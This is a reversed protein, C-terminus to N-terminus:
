FAQGQGGTSSNLHRRRGNNGRYVTTRIERRLSPGTSLLTPSHSVWIIGKGRFISRGVTRPRSFWSEVHQMKSPHATKMEVKAVYPHSSELVSNIDTNNTSLGERWNVDRPGRREGIREPSFLRNVLCLFSISLYIPLPSSAVDVSACQRAEEKGVVDWRNSKCSRSSFWNMLHMLSNTASKIHIAIFSRICMKAGRVWNSSRRSVRAYM